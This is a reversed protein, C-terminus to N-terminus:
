HQVAWPKSLCTLLESGWDLRRFARCVSQVCLKLTSTHTEHYAVYWISPQWPLIYMNLNQLLQMDSKCDFWMRQCSNTPYMPWPQLPPIICRHAKSLPHNLAEPKGHVRSVIKNHSNLPHCYQKHTPPIHLSFSALPYQCSDMSLCAPM